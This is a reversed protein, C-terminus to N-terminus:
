IFLRQVHRHFRSSTKVTKSSFMYKVRPDFQVGTMVECEYDIRNVLEGNSLLYDSAGISKCWGTTNMNM